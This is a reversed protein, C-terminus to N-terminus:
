YANCLILNGDEYELDFGDALNGSAREIKLETDKPLTKLYEILHEVTYHYTMKTNEERKRVYM